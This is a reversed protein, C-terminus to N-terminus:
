GLKGWKTHTSVFPNYANNSLDFIHIWEKNGCPKCSGLWEPGFPDLKMSLPQNTGKWAHQELYNLLSCASETSTFPYVKISKYIEVQGYKRWEHYKNYLTENNAVRRIYRALDKMDNFDGAFVFSNPPAVRKYDAKSPGMVIPVSEFIALAQWFKETIYESCCSNEFAIYFKYRKLIKLGAFGRSIPNNGCTGYKHVPIYSSLSEVFGTRNWFVTNCHSSAWAVMHIPKKYTIEVNREHKTMEFPIYAGFPAVVESKSHYMFSMNFLFDQGFGLPKLGTSSRVQPSHYPSEATSYVWIQHPERVKTVEEWIDSSIKAAFIVVDAAAIGTVNWVSPKFTITRDTGPCEFVRPFTRKESLIWHSNASFIVADVNNKIVGQVQFIDPTVVEGNSPAIDLGGSANTGNVCLRCTDGEQDSSLVYKGLYALQSYWEAVIVYEIVM